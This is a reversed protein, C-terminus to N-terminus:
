KHRYVGPTGSIREYVHIRKRQQLLPLSLLASALLRRVVPTSVGYSASPQPWKETLSVIFM